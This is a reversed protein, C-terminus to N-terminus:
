LSQISKILIQGGTANFAYIPWKKEWWNEDDNLMQYINSSCLKSRLQERSKVNATRTEEIRPFLHKQGGGM